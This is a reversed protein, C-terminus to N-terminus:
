EPIVEVVFPRESGKKASERITTDGVLFSFRKFGDHARSQMIVAEEQKRTFRADPFILHYSRNSSQKIVAKGLKFDRFMYQLRRAELEIDPLLMRDLDLAVFHLEESM